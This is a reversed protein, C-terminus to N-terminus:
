FRCLSGFPQYLVVQRQKSRHIEFIVHLASMSWILLVLFCNTTESIHQRKKFERQYCFIIKEAGFLCFVNFLTNSTCCFNFRNFCCVENKIVICNRRELDTYKEWVKSHGKITM